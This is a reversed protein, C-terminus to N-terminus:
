SARVKFVFERSILVHNPNLDQHVVNQEHVYAMGACVDRLFVFLRGVDLRIRPRGDSAKIADEVLDTLSMAM